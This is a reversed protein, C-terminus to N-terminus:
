SLSIICELSFSCYWLRWQPLKSEEWDLQLHVVFTYTGPLPHFVSLFVVRCLLDKPIFVAYRVNFNDMSNNLLFFRIGTRWTAETLLVDMGHWKWKGNENTQNGSFLIFIPVCYGRQWLTPFNQNSKRLGVFGECRNSAAVVPLGSAPLYKSREPMVCVSSGELWVLDLWARLLSILRWPLPLFLLPASSGVPGSGLGIELFNNEERGDRSFLPPGAGTIPLILIGSLPHFLVTVNKAFQVGCLLTYVM